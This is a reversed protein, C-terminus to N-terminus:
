DLRIKNLKELFEKSKKHFARAIYNPVPEEWKRSALEKAYKEIEKFDNLLSNEKYTFYLKDSSEIVRELYPDANIM